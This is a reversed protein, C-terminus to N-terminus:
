VGRKSSVLKFLLMGGGEAGGWGGAWWLCVFVGGGSGVCVNVCMCACM